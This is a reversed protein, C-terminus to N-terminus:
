FIEEVISLDIIKYCPRCTLLNKYMVSDDLKSLYPSVVAQIVEIQEVTQQYFNINYKVMLLM